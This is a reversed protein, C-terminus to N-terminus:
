WRVPRQIRWGPAVRHDSLLKGPGKTTSHGVILWHAGNLKGWTALWCYAILKVEYSFNIYFLCFHSAPPTIIQRGSAAPSSFIPPVTCKQFIWIGIAVIWSRVLSKSIGFVSTLCAELDLTELSRKILFQLPRVALPVRCDSALGFVYVGALVGITAPLLMPFTNRHSYFLNDSFLSILPSPFHTQIWSWIPMSFFIRVMYKADPAKVGWLTPRSCFTRLPLGFLYM